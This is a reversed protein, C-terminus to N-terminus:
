ANSADNAEGATTPDEPAVAVHLGFLDSALRAPIPLSMDALLDREIGDALLAGLEAKRATFRGQADTMAQEQLDDKLDQAKIAQLVSPTLAHHTYLGILHAATAAIFVYVVSRGVAPSVTVFNQGALLVEASIMALTGILSAVFLLLSVARQGSGQSRFIFTIFWVLAAVDFLVLGWIQHQWSQPFLRGMVSFTLSLMLGFILLAFVGGLIAAITTFIQKM